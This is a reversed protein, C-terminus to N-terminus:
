PIAMLDRANMDYVDELSREAGSGSGSGKQPDLCLGQRCAADDLCKEMEKRAELAKAIFLRGFCTRCQVAEEAQSSPDLGLLSNIKEEPPMPLVGNEGSCVARGIKSRFEDEHEFWFRSFSLNIRAKLIPACLNTSSFEGEAWAPLSFVLCSSLLLPLIFFVYRCM